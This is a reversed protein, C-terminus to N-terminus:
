CGAVACETRGLRDAEDRVTNAVARVARKVDNDGPLALAAILGGIVRGVHERFFVVNEIPWHM